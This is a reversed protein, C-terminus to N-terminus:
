IECDGGPGLNKTGEVLKIRSDLFDKIKSKSNDTSCDDLCIIEFDEMSQSLISKLCEDIYPEANYVPIVISFKPMKWVKRIKTKFDSKSNEMSNETSNSASVLTYEGYHCMSFDFFNIIELGIEIVREFRFSLQFM